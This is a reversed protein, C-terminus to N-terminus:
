GTIGSFHTGGAVEGCATYLCCCILVNYRRQFTFSLQGQARWSVMCPFCLYLEM